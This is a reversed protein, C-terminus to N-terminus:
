LCEKQTIKDWEVSIRNALEEKTRPKTMYNDLRRKLQYWVHEIPHLDPSQASWGLIKDESFGNQDFWDRTVDSKHPSAKDQQFRIDSATKGYYDLTDLLSSSDLIKVYEESNITGELIVTGYGPGDATICGWFMVGGGNNQVKTTTQHPQMTGPKDSWYFSVSDFGWMNVRTEDSLVWKRWATVTYHRHAKRIAKFGKKRLMKKVGSTTMPIFQSALFSVAGKPGDMRGNRISSAIYRQAKASIKSVRGVNTHQAGGFFKKNYNGITSKSINPLLKIIQSYPTKKQLLVKLANQTESSIPKTM